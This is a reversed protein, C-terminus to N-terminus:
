STKDQTLFDRGIISRIDNMIKERYILTSAENSMIMDLQRTHIILYGLIRLKEKMTEEDERELRAFLADERVETRFGFDELINAIFFARRVRRPRDAAGGKFQFSIYNEMSREGVITEVISFHFGFRSHLSCFNRSIMFYNKVTYSSRISPDISPDTTAQFLVSMFGRTDVPPPGEWEVATMGEWLALMPISVINDLNVEKGIVDERFGDDLNIIWFQMPVQCVLQKSSREPFHHEKGFNFMEQVSKEHAFRTIDHFSKCNKPKFDPADPDLLTLPSIYRIVEKLTQFVPSGEMFIRKKEQPIILSKISGRYIRLGDADVTVVEGPKLIDTARPLGFIAPVGFERAVNALHGAIGGKETIVAVARNLLAAWRPMPQSSVLIAGDPFRLADVDKKVIYVPGSACGPSARVGGEMILSGKLDNIERKKFGYQHTELQMLPRCQLIYISGDESIAWEVDQPCGYHDELREAISALELAESDQLSPSLSMDGTIDLRCVGEEPYCVFKREKKRIERELIVRENGRSVVFLDPEVSGDVVSKPLGWASSIFVSDDRINLPNRSYLVGGSRARIMEMCGVAMDVDEDRIGRNLRYIIAQLSYKSALIERYADILNEGSVNLESRYQGAFSAGMVDEGLASSRLSVTVGKGSVEQLNNYAENIAEQLQYPVKSRIILQQIEGSLAFLEDIRDVKSSQLLRDIEPQLDNHELFTRYAFATIVFGEPIPLGINNRVEGLNAMKSGTQDAMERDVEKLPIVFREGERQLVKRSIINNISGQIERFRKYLERYKGPALEDLNQIIRYVNVAIATCNARITSMGFLRDGKLFGEMDSMIELAKNNASLLLKFSHYRAKFTEELQEPSPSISREEQDKRIINILFKLPNIMPKNLVGLNV